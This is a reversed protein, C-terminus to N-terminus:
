SNKNKWRAEIAKKGKESANKRYTLEEIVGRSILKNGAEYREFDLFGVSCFAQIYSHAREVDGEFAVGIVVMRQSENNLDIVGDYRYLLGLLAIWAGLTEIKSSSCCFSAEMIRPDQAIHWPMSM